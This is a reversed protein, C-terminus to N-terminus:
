ICVDFFYSFCAFFIFHFLFWYIGEFFNAKIDCTTRIAINLVKWIYMAYEEPSKFKEELDIGQFKKMVDKGSVGIVVLMLLFCIKMKMKGFEEFLFFSSFTQRELTISPIVSDFSHM